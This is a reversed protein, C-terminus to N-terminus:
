DSALSTPLNRSSPPRSSKTVPPRSPSPSATITADIVRVRETGIVSLYSDDGLRTPVLTRRNARLRGLVQAGIANVATLFSNGNFAKDWMAPM